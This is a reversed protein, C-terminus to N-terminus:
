AAKGGSAHGFKIVAVFFPGGIANGLTTWLLFHGYDAWTVKEGAFIGALVEVSGVVVHNLRAFGIVTTILWVIVIQSITDRSASVLWSLLGMLWGAMVGSLFVVWSPHDTAALAIDGFVPRDIVGLAPGILVAFAAFVAAGILNAVYVVSWVRALAAISAERNLVTLVALTTQETFLESRGLVVIIFGVAYMNAVLMDSIMKSLPGPLEARNVATQMIAMLLLSFGVDLGASLGSVFLQPTPREISARSEKIEHELIQASDKKPEQEEGEEQHLDSSM